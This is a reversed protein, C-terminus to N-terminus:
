KFIHRKSFGKLRNIKIANNYISGVRVLLILEPNTTKFNNIRSEVGFILFIISFYYNKSMMIFVKWNDTSDTINNSNVNSINLNPFTFSLEIDINIYFTRPGEIRRVFKSWKSFLNAISRIRKRSLSKSLVLIINPM